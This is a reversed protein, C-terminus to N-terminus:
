PGRLSVGKSQNRVSVILVARCVPYWSQSTVDCLPTGVRLLGIGRHCDSDSVRRTLGIDGSALLCLRRDRHGVVVGSRRDVVRIDGRGKGAIEVVDGIVLSSVVIRDIM